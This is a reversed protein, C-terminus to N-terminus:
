HVSDKGRGMANSDSIAIPEMKRNRMLMITICISSHHDRSHTANNGSIEVLNVFTRNLQRKRPRIISTKYVFVYFLPTQKYHWLSLRLKICLKLLM